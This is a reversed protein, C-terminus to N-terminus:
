EANAREKKIAADIAQRFSTGKSMWQCDFDHVEWLGDGVYEVEGKCRQMWDLREKDTPM